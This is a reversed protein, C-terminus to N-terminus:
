KNGVIVVVEAKTEAEGAPLAKVVNAGLEKQLNAVLEGKSGDTLDVLITGTFDNKAAKALRLINFGYTAKLQDRIKSAADAVSSGNRLDVTIRDTARQPQDNAKPDSYFIPGVNVLVNRNEDFIIAKRSQSFILLKDGNSANTYFDQTSALTEVDNITAVIPNKEAPLDMIKGLKELLVDTQKQNLESALKPDTLVAIKKQAAQYNIYSWAFGAVALVLLAILLANTLKSSGISVSESKTKGETPMSIIKGAM